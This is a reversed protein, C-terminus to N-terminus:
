YTIIEIGFKPKNLEEWSAIKQLEYALASDINNTSCLYEHSLTGIIMTKHNWFCLDELVAVCKPKTGISDYRTKPLKKKDRLFIDCYCESLITLTEENAEYITQEMRHYIKPYGYWQSPEFSKIKYQDLMNEVECPVVDYDKVLKKSFSFATSHSFSIQLFTKFARGSVGGTLDKNNNLLLISM